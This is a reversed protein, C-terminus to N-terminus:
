NVLVCSFLFWFLTWDSRMADAAGADVDADAADFM